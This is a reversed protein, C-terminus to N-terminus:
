HPWTRYYSFDIWNTESFKAESFFGQYAGHQFMMEYGISSAFILWQGKLAPPPTPDAKAMVVAALGDASAGMSYVDGNSWPQRAIWAITDYGDESDAQWVTFNGESNYTGRMEQGVSVFDGPVFINAIAALGLNGYPSRDIVTSFGDTPLSDIGGRHNM